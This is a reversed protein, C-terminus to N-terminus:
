DAPEEKTERADQLILRNAIHNFELPDVENGTLKAYMYQPVRTALCHFFDTANDEEGLESPNIYHESDEDFLTQLASRIKVHYEIQKKTNM